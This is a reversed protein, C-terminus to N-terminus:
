ILSKKYINYVDNIKLNPLIKIAAEVVNNAFLNIEEETFEGEKYLLKKLYIMFDNLNEFGILSLVKSVKEKDCINMYESLLLGNARGHPINKYITLQYGLKHPISTGTNTILIGGFNSLMMMDEYNELSFKGLMLADKVKGFLKLGSESVSDIYYGHQSLLYGEILHSLADICTNVTISLPMSKLYTEDLFCLRPYVHCPVSAKTKANKDSLIAYPTVESGTGATTPILVVPLALVEGKKNLINMDLSNKLLAAVVKASDMPSGGGIGIVFDCGESEAFFAAKSVEDYTPNEEIKNFIAYKINNNNLANIIDQQAGSKIASSKGTLILAKKGYEKLCEGYKEISGIGKIIKTKMFFSEM